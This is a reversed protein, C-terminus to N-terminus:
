TLMLYVHCHRVVSPHLSYLSTQHRSERPPLSGGAGPNTPPCLLWARRDPLGAHPRPTEASIGYLWSPNNSPKEHSARHARREASPARRARREVSPARREVHECCLGLEGGRCCLLERLAM